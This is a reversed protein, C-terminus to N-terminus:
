GEFNFGTKKTEKETKKPFFGGHSANFKQMMSGKAVPPLSSFVFVVYTGANDPM